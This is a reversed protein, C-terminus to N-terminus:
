AGPRGTPPSATAGKTRGTAPDLPRNGRTNVREGEGWGLAQAMTTVPLSEAPPTIDVWRHRSAIMFVRKRRSSVGPEAAEM